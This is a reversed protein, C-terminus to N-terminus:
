SSHFDINEYTLEPILGDKAVDTEQMISLTNTLNSDNSPLIDPSTPPEDTHAADTEMVVSSPPLEARVVYKLISIWQNMLTLNDVQIFITQNPHSIKFIFESMDSAAPDTLALVEHGPLPLTKHAIQDQRAKFFYMVFNERVTVWTKKWAKRDTSVLLYGSILSADTAKVKLISRAKIRDAVM